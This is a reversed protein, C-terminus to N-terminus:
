CATRRLKHKKDTGNVPAPIRTLLCTHKELEVLGAESEIIGHELLDRRIQGVGRVMGLYTAVMDAKKQTSGDIVAQPIENAWARQRNWAEAIRPLYKDIFRCAACNDSM